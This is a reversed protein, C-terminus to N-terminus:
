RPASQFSARAPVLPVPVAIAVPSASVTCWHSWKSAVWIGSVQVTAGIKSGKPLREATSSMEARAEGRSFDLWYRASCITLLKAWRMSVAFRMRVEERLQITLSVDLWASASTSMSYTSTSSEEPRMVPKLWEARCSSAPSSRMLQRSEPRMMPRSNESKKSQSTSLRVRKTPELAMSRLTTRREPECRLRNMWTTGGALMRTSGDALETCSQLSGGGSLATAPSSGDIWLFRLLSDRSRLVLM